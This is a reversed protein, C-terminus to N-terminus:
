PKAVVLWGYGHDVSFHTGPCLVLPSIMLESNMHPLTYRNIMIRMQNDFISKKNKISKRFAPIVVRTKLSYWNGHM